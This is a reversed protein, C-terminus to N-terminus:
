AEIHLFRVGEHTVLLVRGDPLPLTRIEGIVSTPGVAVLRNTLTDGSVHLVSVWAQQADYTGYGGGVVTLLTQQAPLWTVQHPEFAAQVVSGAPYDVTSLERPHTLDGLDFLTAKGRPVLGPRRVPPLSPGASGPSSTTGNGGLAPAPQVPVPVVGVPGGPSTQGLGILRDAGIPHLYSSWGPLHLAGLLRPQTPDALSVAYLPDVQRATVLIAVDDFWRVARIQQDRGLGDLHGIEDLNGGRARLLSIANAGDATPHAVRLVGNHEDMSWSDAVRGQVSGSAVYTAATGSLGFDYIRTLDVTAGANPLDACCGWGPFVPPAAVYLSDTAFYAIASATAVSSASAEDPHAADFGVVTLTGPGSDDRPIAVQSCDVLPTTSPTGADYTTVQPLWDDITSARVVARNHTLAQQQAAQVHSPDPTGPETTPGPSLSAPDAPATFALAPLGASVVVRIVGGHQRAAVLSGDIVRDDVLSPHSPDALDFTKIRTGSARAGTAPLDVGLASVDQGVVVAREGALLVRGGTLGALPATGVRTPEAASVDWVSLAGDSVRVLLHGDSKATDPEDVGPEQVNTGTASDTAADITSADTRDDASGAADLPAPVSLGASAEAYVMPQTWGWPTVRDVARDVYWALLDDCSAGTSLAQDALRLQQGHTAGGSVRGATAFGGVFALGIGLSVTTIFGTRRLLNM